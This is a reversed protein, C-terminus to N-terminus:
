KTANAVEMPNPNDGALHSLGTETELERLFTHCRVILIREHLKGLIAPRVEALKSAIAHAPNECPWTPDNIPM